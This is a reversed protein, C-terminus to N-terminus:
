SIKQQILYFNQKCVVLKFVWACAIEILCYFSEVRMPPLLVSKKAFNLQKFLNKLQIKIFM